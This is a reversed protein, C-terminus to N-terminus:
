PQPELPVQSWDSKFTWETSLLVPIQLASPLAGSDLRLRISVQDAAAIAEAAVDFRLESELHLWLDNLLVFSHREDTTTNHLQYQSSLSFYRIQYLHHVQHINQDFWFTRERTFHAKALLTLVIGNDIAEDIEDSSTIEFNPQIQLQKAQWNQKIELVNIEGAHASTLALMLMITLLWRNM